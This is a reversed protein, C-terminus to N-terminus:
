KAPGRREGPCAGPLGAGGIEDRDAWRLDGLALRRGDQAHVAVQAVPRGDRVDVLVPNAPGGRGWREGWQRLGILVPLLAEGKDTLRYEVRRRDDECPLRAMIGHAVLRALRNSLINRAIGLQSQFQEFHAIGNFAGRLILFAWREGVAELAEPLSCHLAARKLKDCEPIM